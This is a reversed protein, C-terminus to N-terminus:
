QPRVVFRFIKCHLFAEKLEVRFTKSILLNTYCNIAPVIMFLFYTINLIFYDIAIQDSSKSQYQTIQQYILFVALPIRFIIYIVIDVLLMKILQHDKSGIIHQRGMTTSANILSGTPHVNNHVTGVNKLTWLGFMIMLLPPIIANFLLSYYTIFVTYNGPQFYCLLINPGFQIIETFIFAHIHFIMWFLALVIICTIALRYTSRKRIGADRSTLLTRDISALVMYTPGLSSFVYSTYFRFRCYVINTSSPDIDYGVQMVLPIFSFYVFLINAINAAILCITCPNKRLTSKTFVFLNITCSITANIILFPGGFRFLNTQISQLTRLESM